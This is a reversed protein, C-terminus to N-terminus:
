RYGAATKCAYRGFRAVCDTGRRADSATKRSAVACPIEGGSTNFFRKIPLGTLGIWARLEEESPRHEAIHRYTYAVGREELFRLAKRCTTCKPYCLVTMSGGRRGENRVALTHARRPARGGKQMLVGRGMCADCTFFCNPCVCVSQTGKEQQVMYAGCEPCGCRM